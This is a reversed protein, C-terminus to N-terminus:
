GDRGPEEDDPDREGEAQSPTPLRTDGEPRDAQEPPADEPREGEAQSPTDDHM